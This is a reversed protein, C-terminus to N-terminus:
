RNRASLNQIEFLERLEPPLEAPEHPFLKAMAALLYLAADQAAKFRGAHGFRFTDTERRSPLIQRATSPALM